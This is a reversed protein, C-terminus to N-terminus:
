RASEKLKSTRVKIKHYVHSDRSKSKVINILLYAAFGIRVITGSRRVELLLYRRGEQKQGFFLSSTSSDNGNAIAYAPKSIDIVIKVLHQM